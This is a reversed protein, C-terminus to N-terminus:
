NFIMSSLFSDAYKALYFTVSRQSNREENIYTLGVFNQHYVLLEDKGMTEQGSKNVM